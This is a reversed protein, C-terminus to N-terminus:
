TDSSDSSNQTDKVGAIQEAAGAVSHIQEPSLESIRSRLRESLSGHFAEDLVQFLQQLTAGGDVADKIAKKLLITWDDAHSALLYTPDLTSVPVGLAAAIKPLHKSTKDEGSELRSISQQSVGTIKALKAQSLPVGLRIRKLNEALTMTGSDVRRRRSYYVLISTSLDDPM